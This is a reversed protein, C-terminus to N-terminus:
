QHRLRCMRVEPPKRHTLADEVGAEIVPIAGKPVSVKTSFNWNEDKNLTVILGHERREITVHFAANPGKLNTSPDVYVRSDPAM